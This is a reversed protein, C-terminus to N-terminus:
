RGIQPTCHYIDELNLKNLSGASEQPVAEGKEDVRPPKSGGELRWPRSPGPEDGSDQDLNESDDSTDGEVGM